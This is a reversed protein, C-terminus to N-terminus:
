SEILRIFPTVIAAIMFAVILAVPFSVILSAALVAVWTTMKGIGGAMEMDVLYSSINRRRAAEYYRVVYPVTTATDTIDGLANIGLASGFSQAFGRMIHVGSRLASGTHLLQKSKGKDSLRGAFWSVLLVLLLSASAILGVKEYTGVVLYIFLPWVLIATQNQFEMAFKAMMHRKPATKFLPLRASRKDPAAELTKLLPYGAILLALATLELVYNIGFNTAIIGGVLPALATAVASLILITSYQGAPRNQSIVRATDIHRALWFFGIASGELIAAPFLLWSNAPLMFLLLIYGFIMAYSLMIGHKAGFRDVLRAGPVAAIIKSINAVIFFLAIVPISLGLRYLYIPVFIGVLGYAFAYLSLSIYLENMETYHLRHLKIHHHLYHAM